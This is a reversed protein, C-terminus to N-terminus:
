TANGGSGPEPGGSGAGEGHGKSGPNLSGEAAAILQLLKEPDHLWSVLAKDGLTRAALEEAMNSSDQAIFRLENVRIGGNEGFAAKLQEGVESPKGACFAAVFHVFDDQKMSSTFHVSAIGASNLLAAFSHESLGELPMGDVVLKGSATGLLLGTEPAVARKLEDWAVTMQRRTRLHGLEYLRVYKLLINLSRAFARASEVQTLQNMPSLERRRFLAWGLSHVAPAM